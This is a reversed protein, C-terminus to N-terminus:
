FIPTVFVYGILYGILNSGNAYFLGITGLLANAPAITTFIAMSEQLWNIKRDAVFFSEMDRAAGKSSFYGIVLIVAMYAALSGLIWAIM